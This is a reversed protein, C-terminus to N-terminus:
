HVDHEAPIVVLPGPAHNSLHHAVSGVLMGSFGGIGRSGVILVEADAAREALLGATSTGGVIIRSIPRSLGSTDAADIMQDVLAEAGEEFVALDPVALTPFGYSAPLMWSHVVEVYGDRSRAEDLAWDLARRSTDSGDVGVVVKGAKLDTRRDPGRVIAIPAQVHHLCHQSVSGMVLGAIGGYGHSGVVVLEAGESAEVLAPGPLDCILQLQVHAAAEDGVADAVYSALALAANEEDYEPDHVTTRDVRHQRLFTWALVARVDWGRRAGEAVAWRLAEASHDSEDLGVIITGM